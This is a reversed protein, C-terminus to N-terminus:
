YTKGFNRMFEIFDLGNVANSQDYDALNGAEEKGFEKMFEIYDLGNIQESQDYDGTLVAIRASEASVTLDTTGVTIDVTLPIGDSRTFTLTHAGAKVNQLEFHGNSDTFAQSEGGDLTVMVNLAPLQPATTEDYYHGVYGDVTVGGSTQERAFVATVEAAGGPMTFTTTATDVSSFSGGGSSEWRVFRYGLLAQAKLLVMDGEACQGLNGGSVTGMQPDNVSITLPYTEVINDRIIVALDDASIDVYLTGDSEEINGDIQNIYTVGLKANDKVRLTISGLTVTNQYAQPQSSNYVWVVKNNRDNVVTNELETKASVFDFISRDFTLEGQMLRPSFEEKSAVVLHVTINRGQLVNSTGGESVLQFKPREPLRVPLILESDAMVQQSELGNVSVGYNAQSIATSEGGLTDKVRFTVSGLTREATSEGGGTYIMRVRGKRETSLQVNEGAQASVVELISNDYNLDNAAYDASVSVASSTLYSRVTVEDGPGYGVEAIGGVAEMSFRYVDGQYAIPFSLLNVSTNVASIGGSLEVGEVKHSVATTGGPASSKVKLIVTMLALTDEESASTTDWYVCKLKQVNDGSVPEFDKNITVGSVLSEAKVVEFVRDDVTITSDYGRLGLKMGDDAKVSLELTVQSGPDYEQKSASTETLRSQIARDTTEAAFAAPFGAGLAALLVSVALILSAAKKQVM